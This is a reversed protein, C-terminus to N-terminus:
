DQVFVHVLWGALIPFALGLMALGNRAGILPLGPDKLYAVIGLVVALAALVITTIEPRM